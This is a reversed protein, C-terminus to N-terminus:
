QGKQNIFIRTAPADGDLLSSIRHRPSGIIVKAGLLAPRLTYKLKARAGAAGARSAGECHQMLKEVSNILDEDSNGTVEEVLTSPDNPDLYIGDTSTLILLTKAGTIECIVAATEDNDICEVVDQTSERLRVLEMKRNEEFSVPDNYNIIPIAGQQAARLLLKRIHERKEPDNFHTHEVLLQRLSYESPVFQRYNNMLVAQGQAAYDTKVEDVDGCLEKGTRKIYDLRGIETAGSSVWVMGPKLEAGIRSFINYDIDGEEKRILAMSGIKGVVNFLAEQM